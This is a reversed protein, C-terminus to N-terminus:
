GLGAMLNGWWGALGESLVQCLLGWFSFTHETGVPKMFM